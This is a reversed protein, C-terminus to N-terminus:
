VREDLVNEQEAPRKSEKLEIMKIGNQKTVTCSVSYIVIYPLLHFKLYIPKMFYDIM